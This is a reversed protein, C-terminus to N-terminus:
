NRRYLRYFFRMNELQLPYSLGEPLRFWQSDTSSILEWNNNQSLIHHILFHVPFVKSGVTVESYSGASEVILLLAGPQCASLSHLFAVTGTKSSAFLENTTFMSTILDLKSIDVYGEPLTLVDHNIFNVKYPSNPGLNLNAFAGEISEDHPREVWNSGMYATIKNLVPGWEAVDIATVHLEQSQRQANNGLLSLVGLGVIEGGAGGGICLVQKPRADPHPKFLAEGVLQELLSAYALARSPTWRSVYAELYEQSGFATPYDRDFLAAKVEQIRRSLVNLDSLAEDFTRIFLDLIQQEHYSDYSTSKSSSAVQQSKNNRRESRRTTQNQRAMIACDNEFAM